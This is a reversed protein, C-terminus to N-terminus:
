HINPMNASDRTHKNANRQLINVQGVGLSSASMVNRRAPEEKTEEEEIDEEANTMGVDINEAMDEMHATLGTTTM